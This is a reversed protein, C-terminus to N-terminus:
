QEKPAQSIEDLQKKIRKIEEKAHNIKDEFEKRVADANKSRAFFGLNNEWTNIEGTLQNMKHKLDNKENGPKGSRFSQKHGSTFREKNHQRISQFHKDIIAKFKAYITDKHELPVMGIESWQRQFDKLQEISEDINEGLTFQVAKEILANKKDFNEKYDSELSTYHANKREFFSDCAKRFREWIKQNNRDGAFGTKKWEAQLRKLEETTKKWDTNEILAEAQICLENKLQLNATHEKKLSTFFDNKRVFFGDCLGRFKAWVEDNSKKDAFGVKKWENQVEVLMKSKEMWESAKLPEDKLLEETKTILQNKAALNEAYREKLQEFYEKRREYVKDSAAKFREWIENSKERGVHGTERWKNQLSHLTQLASNLSPENILDEAKECLEIKAELNKKFDLEQLERNIKLNEYFKDTYLKYTMWLDNLQGSPVPGTARWKAQLEHFQDFARQMNEENQILNKMAVLIEQKINFNNERLKEQQEAYEAKRKNYKKLASQFRDDAQTYSYKFDDKVGGEELFASLAQEKESSQIQEFANKLANIKSKVVAIDGEAFGEAVKVLEEKTLHNYNEEQEPLTELHEEPLAALHEEQLPQALSENESQTEGAQQNEDAHFDNNVETM